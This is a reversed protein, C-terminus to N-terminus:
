ARKKKRVIGLADEIDKRVAATEYKERVKVRLLPVGAATLAVTLFNDRARRQSRPVLDDDLEIALKVELTEYDCVVFDIHKGQIRNNWLLSKRTKPRVKIIDALRVMSFIVWDERAALQLTRFFNIGAPTLLGGRREYPPLKDRLALMAVVFLAAAIVGFLVIQWNHVLLPIM